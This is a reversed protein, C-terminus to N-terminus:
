RRGNRRPTEERSELWERVSARRYLVTRGIVIRPPAVREVHWRALTRPSIGLERALSEPSLFEDGLLPAQEANSQPDAQLPAAQTATTM